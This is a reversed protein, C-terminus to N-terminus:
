SRKVLSQTRLPIEFAKFVANLPDTPLIEGSHIPRAIESAFEPTPSNALCAKASVGACLNTTFNDVRGDLIFRAVLLRVIAM